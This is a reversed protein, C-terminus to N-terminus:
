NVKFRELVERNLSVGLGPRRPIIIKTGNMDLPENVLEERLVSPSRDFEILSEEPFLSTPFHPMAAQLQLNAALGVGTGWVHPICRVAWTECLAIVKMIESFGGVACLDPQAIDVARRSVLDRFGFRTFESEGGAIMVNLQNKLELYGPLDEPPIPEEFWFIDLDEIRKGLWIAESANYACNADLMLRKDPGITERILRIKALDDALGFGIKFKMGSYGQEVYGLAEDVLAQAQDDVDRRYFGTAYTEVESRYAGGLLDSVPADYYKGKLDWLALDIASLAQVAIGKQGAMRTAAYLKDWLRNIDLAREGLLLDKFTHEVMAAAAHPSFCFAEGLGTLGQDTTIEVLMAVRKTVRAQAWIFAQKKSLENELVHVKLGSIKM